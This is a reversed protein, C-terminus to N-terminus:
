FLKHKDLIECHLMDDREELRVDYVLGLEVLSIQLEPDEVQQLADYVDSEEPM